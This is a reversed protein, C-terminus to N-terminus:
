RNPVGYLGIANPQLLAMSQSAEDDEKTKGAQKELAKTVKDNAESDKASEIVDDISLGLKDLGLDKELGMVALQGGETKLKSYAQQMANVFDNTSAYDDRNVGLAKGTRDILDLKMKTVNVSNVSFISESIKSEAQGPQKTVGIKDGIGNAIAAINDAGSKEQKTAAVSNAQQLILLAASNVNPVTTM